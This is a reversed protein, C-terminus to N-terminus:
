RAARADEAGSSVSSLRFFPPRMPPAWAISPEISDILGMTSMLVPVTSSAPLCRVRM